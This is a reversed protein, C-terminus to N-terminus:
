AYFCQYIIEEVEENSIKITEPNAGPDKMLTDLYGPNIYGFNKYLQESLYAYADQNGQPVKKMIKDNATMRESKGYGLLSLGHGEKNFILVKPNNPDNQLSLLQEVYDDVQNMFDKLKEETDILTFDSLVRMSGRSKIKLGFTKEAPVANQAILDRILTSNYINARASGGVDTPSKFETMADDFVIIENEPSSKAWATISTVAEDFSKVESTLDYMVIDPNFNDTTIIKATTTEKSELVKVKTKKQPPRGFYTKIRKKRYAPKEGMMDDEPSVVATHQSIFMSNYSSLTTLKEMSALTMYKEVSPKLLDAIKVPNVIKGLSYIGKSDQGAQLLSFLAFHSFLNSILQNELKNTSKIVNVDALKELDENYMNLTESELIYETLKLNKTAGNNGYQLSSLLKYKNKLNPFLADISMVQNAYGNKNKMIFPINIKHLLAKQKLFEEYARRSLEKDYDEQSQEKDKKFTKRIEKVANTFFATEKFEAFPIMQRLSEREYVFQYYLNKSVTPDPHKFLNSEVPAYGFQTRYSEKSYASSKFDKDMQTFDVYMKYVGDEKRVFVARNLGRTPEISSVISAGKYSDGTNFYDASYLDQQFLYSSFDNTFASLMQNKDRFAGPMKTKFSNNDIKSLYSQLSPDARFNFFNSLLSVTFPQVNFSGIASSTEIKERVGEPLRDNYDLALSKDLKQKSEYLSKTKSTDFNMGLKITTTASSMDEIELFHLFTMIDFVKKDELDMVGMINKDLEQLSFIKESASNKMGSDGLLKPMLDTYLYRKLTFSPKSVVEEPVSIGLRQLMKVRAHMRYYNAQDETAGLAMSFTSKNFRQQSVYDRIAPQSVFAVAQELPVGAQIMFLLSPSIESNGQIDFIWSDKAVDVWGNIMQSIVTSISNKKNVDYLGALSIADEGKIKISNHPMRLIQRIPITVDEEETEGKIFIDFSPSMHFGIRNFVANYTNDVAGMGLTKKGINNSIQKFRNYGLEFIRTASIRNKGNEDTYSKGDNSVTEYPDYDRVYRSYKKALPKVLDTSNPTIFDTFNNELKLIDVVSSLIDNEIGKSTGSAIAVKLDDIEKQLPVLEENNIKKAAASTQFIGEFLQDLEDNLEIIENYYADLEINKDLQDKAELELVAMEEKIEQKKDRISQIASRLQDNVKIKGEEEVRFVLNFLKETVADKQNYKDKLTKKNSELNNEDTRNYKVLSVGKSTSVISPFMMTMKDIDFDSGSKAVVESPLIIMNGSNEPLFEYVEAFEMSNLGQVPIRVGSITIMKRNDGENLFDENKILINLAELATIKNGSDKVLELVKPHRLLKKFDGQIAIKVKMASTEGNKKQNYFPLFNTGFARQEKDTAKRLGAPEFGAGSVQVLAEGNIKQRILRKYVIGTLLREIKEASPHYSLDYVLTKTTPDYKIFDIDHEALDQRTLEKKVFELLKDSLTIKGDVEKIGAERILERKKYETLKGILSEYNLLKTYNPTTEGKDLAKKWEAIRKQADKLNPKFDTPVGYEMLGIEVLKRLQTSFIVQGKYQDSIEVQDKFYDIFIDNPTFTYDDNLFAPTTDKATSDNYFKDVKGDKTLSNIKSGSQFTAYDIGQSVMKNHLIELNTGKILTPILPMLSFKHFAQLPLGAKAALPGWYQMKKVNFFKNALSVSVDKGDLIDNYLDEHEPSWKGLRILLSRYADFSIWGQGDGTTMKKYDGLADEIDKEQEKTLSKVGLRKAESKKISEIYEDFYVSQAKVDGLIATSMVKGEKKPAPPAQNKYWVSSAYRRPMIENLFRNISEDSRPITGTSALGANRKHFEEKLHNYLAPDGYFIVTTEYKQIWDNVIYGMVASEDIFDTYNEPNLLLKNTANKGLIEKRVASFLLDNSFIGTNNIDSKFRETQRILYNNIANEIDNRLKIDADTKPNMMQGFFDDSLYNKKIQNRLEKPLVDEMNVFDSGVEKYTKDGVTATGAIDGSRLKNIRSVEASIYKLFQKRAQQMGSTELIDQKSDNLRKYSAFSSMPIYHKRGDRFRMKYWYSTSKDAHRTAESVGYLIYSYFNHLSQTLEDAEASDVSLGTYANNILMTVGSSNLLELRGFAERGSVKKTLERKTLDTGFTETAIITGEIFPNRKTDLHAMKPDAILDQFSEAGNWADIQQSITSRLSLEWRASGTATSVMTDGYKDSYKIVNDLLEKYSSDENRDEYNMKILQDISGIEVADNPNKKNFANISILKKMLSRPLIKLKDTLLKHMEPVEPIEMGLVKLFPIPDNAHSTRFEEVVAEINLTNGKFRRLVNENAVQPKYNIFKQRAAIITPNSFNAEWDRAIKSTSTQAKGPKIDIGSIGQAGTKIDVTLQVLPIRKGNFSNHFKTWLNNLLLVRKMNEKSNKDEVSFEASSFRNPNGLKSILQAFMPDTSAAKQLANYQDDIDYIDELVRQVKNWASDFPMLKNFGLENKVPVGDKYEFLSRITYLVEDSALEKMSKENGSRHGYGDKDNTTKEEIDDILFREDFNLYKSKQMHYAIVGLNNTSADVIDKGTVSQGKTSSVSFNAITFELLKKKRVLEPLDNSKEEKATKIKNVVDKYERISRLLFGNYANARQKASSLITSTFESNGNLKNSEDEHESFFSDISDVITMADSYSLSDSLNQYKQDVPNIKNLVEFDADLGIPTTRINQGTRLNNYLDNLNFSAQMNSMGDNLNYGFLIKLIDLITQFISKKVPTKTSVGKGGSLMFKRFDEALYEEIQKDTINPDSFKVTNGNFDVFSGAMKKVEDYLNDREKKTLFMQTFAHWAEHYLQTSDSGKYLTIGAKTFTAISQPNAANIQDFAEIYRVHPKLVNSSSNWWKISEAIQEKTVKEDASAQSKLKNFVDDPDEDTKGKPADYDPETLEDINLLDEDQLEEITPVPFSEEATPTVTTETGIQSLDQRTLFADTLIETLEEKKLASLKNLKNLIWKVFKTWWNYADGKQKVVQEGISQVLAEESGWKKIAEQVIPTNRFWAIYHHAYEHPLTDQKQNVADILVTMAKVNAQGIVRNKDKQNLIVIDNSLNLAPAFNVRDTILDNINKTSVLKEFYPTLGNDYLADYQTQADLQIIGKVFGSFFGTHEDFYKGTNAVSVANLFWGPIPSLVNEDQELSDYENNFKEKNKLVNNIKKIKSELEKYEKNNNLKLIQDATFGFPKVFENHSGIIGMSLLNDTVASELGYEIIDEEGYQAQEYRMGIADRIYDSKANESKISATTRDIDHQIREVLLKNIANIIRSRDKRFNQLAINADIFLDSEETIEEHTISTGRETKNTRRVSINKLTGDEYRFNYVNSDEPSSLNFDRYVTTSNLYHPTTTLLDFLEKESKNDVNKLTNLIQKQKEIGEEVRKKQDEYERELDTTDNMKEYFAQAEELAEVPIVDDGIEKRIDKALDSVRLTLVGTNSLHVYKLPDQSILLSATTNIAKRSKASLVRFANNAKRVDQTLKFFNSKASYSFDRQDFIDDGVEWEPNNTINLGIEPYLKELKDQIKKGLEIDFEVRSQKEEPTKAKTVEASDMKNIEEVPTRFRIYGNHEEFNGSEDIKASTISNKQIFRKYEVESMGEPDIALNKGIQKFFPIQNSTLQLVNISHKKNVQPNYTLAEILLKKSAELDGEVKKRESEKGYYVDGEKSIKVTSNNGFFTYLFDRRYTLINENESDGDVDTIKKEVGNEMYRGLIIDAAKSLFEDGLTEVPKTVFPIPASSNNFDRLFYNRQKSTEVDIVDIFISGGSLDPATSLDFNNKDESKDALVLFGKSAGTIHQVIKRGKGGEIYKKKKLALKHEAKLNDLVEKSTSYGTTRILEDMTQLSGLVKEFSPDGGRLRFFVLKGTERTTSNFADDFYIPNGSADTIVQVLGKYNSKNSSDAETIVGSADMLTIYYGSSTSEISGSDILNKLFAYTFAKDPDSSNGTTSNLSNPKASFVKGNLNASNAAEKEKRKKLAEEEENIKQNAQPDSPTLGLYQVIYDADKIKKSVDQLTPLEAAILEDIQEDQGYLRKINSPVLAAYAISTQFDLGNEQLLNFMDKVYDSLVFKKGEQVMALLDSAVAKFLLDKQKPLIECVIAM